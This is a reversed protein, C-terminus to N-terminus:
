LARKLVKGTISLPVEERFEIERPLKYAALHDKLYERVDAEFESLSDKLSASV